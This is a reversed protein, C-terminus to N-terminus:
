DSNSFDCMSATLYKSWRNIQEDALEVRQDHHMPHRKNDLWILELESTIAVLDSSILNEM